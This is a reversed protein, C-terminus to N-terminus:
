KIEKDIPPIKSVDLPIYQDYTAIEKRLTPIIVAREEANTGCRQELSFLIDELMQKSLMNAGKGTDGCVQLLSLAPLSKL